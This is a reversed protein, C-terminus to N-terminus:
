GFIEQVKTVAAVLADVDEITNYLGFSARATAVIGLHDMLPQACHHGARIAVGCRDLITGIDHPHAQDMVFSLIAAKHKAQGVIRVGEIAALKQTAYTLLAHEHAAINQMGLASLYEIAARLGLVEVIAPTGAEFRYPPDKYLTKEFSVSSIMDGGGQYPPMEALLARKGYLVGIGTPGYLKHGSFCFFDADWAQVDSADHCVGQAGDILALAGADHAAQVIEKIPLVTGLVNSTHAVAVLKTKDSLAARVDEIRVDGEPTVPVVRLVIGLADRLMQWPVINAHHELATILVEDGKKLNARGWSQAVLNISETTNRTFVIEDEHAANIFRQVIPRVGEFAETAKQSLTHVGRHVNAYADSMFRAMTDIVIQPKQASAGNDLYVLPHGHVTQSLVPFDRQVAYVDFTM